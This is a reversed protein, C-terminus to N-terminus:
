VFAVEEANDPVGALERIKEMIGRERAHYARLQIRTRRLTTQLHTIETEIALKQQRERGRAVADARMHVPVFERLASIEAELANVSARADSLELRVRASDIAANSLEKLESSLLNISRLPADPIVQIQQEQLPTEAVIRQEM